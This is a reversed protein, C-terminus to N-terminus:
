FAQVRQQRNKQHQEHHKAGPPLAPPCFALVAFVPSPLWGTRHAATHPPESSVSNSRAYALLRRLAFYFCAQPLRILLFSPFAGTV